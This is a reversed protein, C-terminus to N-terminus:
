APVPAYGEITETRVAAAAFYIASAPVIPMNLLAATVELESQLVRAGAALLVARDARRHVLVIEHRVGSLTARIHHAIGTYAELPEHWTHRGLPSSVSVSVRDRTIEITQRRGIRTFPRALPRAALSGTVLLGSMLALAASPKAAVLALPDGSDGLAVAAVGALSLALGGLPLSLLAAALARGNAARQELRMPLQGSGSTVVSEGIAGIRM